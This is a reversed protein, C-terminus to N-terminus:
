SWNVVRRKRQLCLQKRKYAVKLVGRSVIYTFSGALYRKFNNAILSSYLLNGTSEAITPFILAAVIQHIGAVGDLDTEQVAGPILRLDTTSSDNASLYSAIRDELTSLHQQMIILSTPVAFQLWMGHLLQQMTAHSQEKLLLLIEKLQRKFIETAGTGIALFALMGPIKGEVIMACLSTYCTDVLALGRYFLPPTPFEYAFLNKCYPCRIEKSANGGQVEDIWQNICLQHVWKTSGKCGCPNVLEDDPADEDEECAYCIWCRRNLDASPLKRLEIISDVKEDDMMTAGFTSDFLNESSDGRPFHREAMMEDNQQEKSLAEILSRRKSIVTGSSAGDSSSKRLKRMEGVDQYERILGRAPSSADSEMKRLNLASDM